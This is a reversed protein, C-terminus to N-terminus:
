SGLALGLGGTRVYLLCGKASRAGDRSGPPTRLWTGPGYRGLEDALEGDLVLIEEGHHCDHAPRESGPRFRMLRVMLPGDPGDHENLLVKHAIGPIRTRRWARAATDIRLRQAGRYQRLHVFLQCGHESWPAHPSGEPSLLYSGPGWDGTHDSFTGALVVIEEGEPHEHAPFRSGAAYRVISTVRGSEPAGDHYVRKRAVGKAPSAAWAMTATDAHARLSLDANIAM